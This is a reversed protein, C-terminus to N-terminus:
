GVKIDVMKLSWYAKDFVPHKTMKGLHADKPINDVFLAGNNTEDLYFGFRNNSMVKKKMMQDFVPAVGGRSLSPYALGAIGSFESNEFASGDEETVEGFKAGPLKIGGVDLDDRAVIGKVKGSGYKIMFNAIAKGDGTDSLEAAYQDHQTCGLAASKKSPVWTLASGTDFIMEFPQKPNGIHIKGTYQTAHSNRLLVPKIKSQANSEDSSLLKDHIEGLQQILSLHQEPSRPKRTLPVFGLELFSDGEAPISPGQADAWVVLLIALVTAPSRLMGERMRAGM